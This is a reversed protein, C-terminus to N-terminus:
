KRSLGLGKEDHREVYRRRGEVDHHRFVLNPKGDVCETIVSLSDRDRDGQKETHERHSM